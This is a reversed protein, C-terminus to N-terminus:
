LDINSVADGIAELIGGLLESSGADFVESLTRRIGFIGFLLLFVGVVAEIVQVPLNDFPWASL